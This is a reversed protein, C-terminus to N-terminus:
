VNMNYENNWNIGFSWMVIKAQENHAKCYEGVLYQAATFDDLGIDLANPSGAYYLFASELEQAFGDFTENLKGALDYTGDGEILGKVIEPSCKVIEGALRSMNRYYQLKYDIKEHECLQGTVYEDIGEYIYGLENSNKPAIGLYHMAEHIYTPYFSENKESESFYSFSDLYVVKEDSYQNYYGAVGYEEAAYFDFVRVELESLRDSVDVDITEMFYDTIKQNVEDIEKQTESSVQASGLQNIKEGIARDSREYEKARAATEEDDLPSISTIDSLVPTKRYEKVFSVQAAFAFGCILVALGIIVCLTILIIRKIIRGVTLEKKQKM